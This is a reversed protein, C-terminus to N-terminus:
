ALFWLKKSRFKFWLLNKMQGQLYHTNFLSIIAIYWPILAGRHLNGRFYLWNVMFWHCFPKWISLIVFTWSGSVLDNCGVLIFQLYKISKFNRVQKEYSKIEFDGMFGPCILVSLGFDALKFIGNVSDVLINAPKIDRHIVFNRHCRAVASCM